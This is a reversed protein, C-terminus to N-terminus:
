PQRAIDTRALKRGLGTALNRYIVLGIDPRRRILQGLDGADMRAAEVKTRTTATASHPSDALLGMEGLAEGSEVYGVSQAAGEMVIEVMGDSWIDM